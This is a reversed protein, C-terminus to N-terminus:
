VRDATQYLHGLLKAQALAYAPRTNPHLGLPHGNALRAAGRHLTRVTDDPIYMKSIEEGDPNHYSVKTSFPDAQPDTKRNLPDFQVRIIGNSLIIETIRVIGPNQDPTRTGAEDITFRGLGQAIAVDFAGRPRRFTTFTWEEGARGPNGYQNTRIWTHDMQLRLFTSLATIGHTAEIGYAGFEDDTFRNSGRYKYMVSSAGLVEGRAKQLELIKKRVPTIAASLARTENIILQDPNIRKEDVLKHYEEQESPALFVKEFITVPPKGQRTATSYADLHQGPPTAIILTELPTGVDLLSDTYRLRGSRTADTLREAVAPHSSGFYGPDLKTPDTDYLTVSGRFASDRLLSYAHLRQGAHGAGVIVVESPSSM